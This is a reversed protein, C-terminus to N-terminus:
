CGKSKVRAVLSASQCASVVLRQRGRSPCTSASGTTRNREREVRSSGGDDRFAFTSEARSSSFCPGRQRQGRLWGVLDVAM